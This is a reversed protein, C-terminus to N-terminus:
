NIKSCFNIEIHLDRLIMGMRIILLQEGFYLNCIDGVIYAVV